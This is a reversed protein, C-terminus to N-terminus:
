DLACGLFSFILFFYFWFSLLKSSFWEFRLKYLQHINTHYHNISMTHSFPMHLKDTLKINYTRVLKTL